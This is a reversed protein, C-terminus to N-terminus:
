TLMIIVARTISTMVIAEGVSVLLLKDQKEYKKSNGLTLGGELSASSIAM